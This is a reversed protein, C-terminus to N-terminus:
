KCKKNDITTYSPTPALHDCSRCYVNNWEDKNRGVNELLHGVRWGTERPSLTGLSFWASFKTSFAEGILGNRTAKYTRAKGGGDNGDGVYDELRSLGAEEGGTFPLASHQHLPPIKEGTVADSWGAIPPNSLLPKVLESYLTDLDNNKDNQSLFGGQGEELQINETSIKPFPKLSRGEKGISIKIEKIDTGSKSWTATKLPEVLMGGDMGLGLGEVKKRFVTYIDPTSTKPDFPLQKTPLLTKSDNLYLKIGQEGINERLNALMMAEEVTVEDQAWVGEIQDGGGLASLVAPVLIEPKGFGIMM